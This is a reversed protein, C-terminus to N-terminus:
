EGQLLCLRRPACSPSVPTGISSTATIPSPQLSMAMNACYGNLMAMPLALSSTFAFARNTVADFSSSPKARATLRYKSDRSGSLAHLHPRICTILDNWSKTFSIAGEDQLRAALM